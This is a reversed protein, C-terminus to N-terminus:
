IIMENQRSSHWSNRTSGIWSDWSEQMCKLLHYIWAEILNRKGKTQNKWQVDEDKIITCRCWKKNYSKTKRTINIFNMNIYSELIWHQQNWSIWPIWSNIWICWSSIIVRISVNTLLTSNHFCQGFMYMTTISNYKNNNNFSHPPFFSLPLTSLITSKAYCGSIAGNELRRCIKIKLLNM